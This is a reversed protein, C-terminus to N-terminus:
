PDYFHLRIALSNWFLGSIFPHYCFSKVQKRLGTKDQWKPADKSKGPLVQEGDGVPLFSQVLMGQYHYGRNENREHSSHFSPTQSPSVTAAWPSASVKRRLTVLIPVYRRRDTEHTWIQTAKTREWSLTVLGDETIWFPSFSFSRLLLNKFRERLFPFTWM